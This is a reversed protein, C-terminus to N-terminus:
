SRSLVLLRTLKREDRYFCGCDQIKYGKLTRMDFYEDVIMELPFETIQIQAPWDADVLELSEDQEEIKKKKPM